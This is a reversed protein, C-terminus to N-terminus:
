AYKESLNWRSHCSHFSFAVLFYEFLTFPEPRGVQQREWRGDSLSGAVDEASKREILVPALKNNVFFVYDAIKLESVIYPVQLEDLHECLTHLSKSGGGGERHDVCLTVSKYKKAVFSIPLQRLPGFRPSSDSSLGKKLRKALERGKETLEYVIGYHPSKKKNRREKLLACIGASINESCLKKVKQLFWTIFM